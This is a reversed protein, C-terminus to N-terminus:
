FIKRILLLWRNTTKSLLSDTLKMSQFESYVHGMHMSVCRMAYEVLFGKRERLGEDM